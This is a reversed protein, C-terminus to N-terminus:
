LLVTFIYQQCQWSFDFQKQHDKSVSISFFIIQWILLQMGPVLPKNIQELLSVVDLVATALETVLWNLKCYDVTMRWFGDIKQVSYIPSNFPPPTTSIMMGAVKLDKITTGNEATGEPTCYQKQNVLKRPLPLELAKVQDKGGYYSESWLDPFCLPSEALQQTHRNWNHM